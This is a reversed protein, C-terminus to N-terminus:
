RPAAARVDGAAPAAPPTEATKPKPPAELKALAHQAARLAPDMELARRYAMVAEDKKGQTNLIFALNAQAEAPRIVRGFTSLAEDYRGQQALSMGLNVCARQNAPDAEVARRLYQEAEAWRARNYYSYGIDNLLESDKPSKKLAANLETMARQPDDARDYLVGLRRGCADALTPNQQRAKEYYPIAEVDKGAKELEEAMKMALAASEHATLDASPKAAPTAAMAPVELKPPPTANSTTSKGGGLSACGTALLTSVCCLGAVARPMSARNM